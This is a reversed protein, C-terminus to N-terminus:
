YFILLFKEKASIIIVGMTKVKTPNKHSEKRTNPEKSLRELIEWLVPAHTQMDDSLQEYSTSTLRESDVDEQSPSQLSPALATLEASTVSKIYDIAFRRMLAQGGEPRAKKSAPNRPPYAWRRIIYPLRPDHLLSTRKNRIQAIQNCDADGWSLGDLFEGIELNQNDMEDLVHCIKSSIIGNNSQTPLRTNFIDEPEPIIPSTIEETEFDSDGESDSLLCPSENGEGACDRNNFLNEIEPDELM